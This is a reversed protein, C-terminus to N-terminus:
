KRASSPMRTDCSPSYNLRPSQRDRARGAACRHHRPSAETSPLLPCRPGPLRGGPGRHLLRMYKLLFIPSLYHKLAIDPHFGIHLDIDDMVPTVLEGVNGHSAFGNGIDDHEGLM